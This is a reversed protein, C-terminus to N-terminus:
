QKIFSHNLFTGNSLEIQLWYIGSALHSVAVKGATNNINYGSQLLRGAADYLKINRLNRESSRLQVNVVGSAPNPYIIVEIDNNSEIANVSVVQSYNTRGDIDIEKIRYFTKVAPAWQDTVQYHHDGATNFARTTLGTGAFQIGDTSREIEFFATNQEEYTTWEIQAAKKYRTANLPGWSLPLPALVSALTLENLNLNSLSATTVFNNTADRTVGANYAAWSVGNHVNLTLSSEAIGNLEADLYYITVTGSFGNVTNSLKFARKISPNSAPNTIATNRVLNNPATMTFNVSPQLVLGDISVPTGAAIVFSTASQIALGSQSRVSYFSIIIIWLLLAKKM